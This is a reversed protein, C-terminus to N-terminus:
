GKPAFVGVENNLAADSGRTAKNWQTAYYGNFASPKSLSAVRMTKGYILNSGKDWGLLSIKICSPHFHNM